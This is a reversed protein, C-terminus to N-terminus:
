ILVDQLFITRVKVFFVFKKKEKLSKLIIMKSYYALTKGTFLTVAEIIERVFTIPINSFHSEDFYDFLCYFSLDSRESIKM